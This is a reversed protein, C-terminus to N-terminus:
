LLYIFQWGLSVNLNFSRAQYKQTTELSANYLCVFNIDSALLLWKLIKLFGDVFYKNNSYDYKWYKFTHNYYQTLTKLRFYNLYQCVVQYM